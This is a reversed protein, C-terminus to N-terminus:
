RSSYDEIMLAQGHHQLLKQRQEKTLRNEFDQKHYVCFLKLKKNSDHQLSPPLSMEYDVLRQIDGLNHYFFSGLDAIISISNKDSNEARKVSEEIVDLEINGDHGSSYAEVSDKIILSGEKEYETIKANMKNNSNDGNNKKDGEAPIDRISESLTQRVKDTTEYYPLIFVIVDNDNSSELQRKVYNSYIKRFVETSPYILINHTISVEQEPQSMRETTDNVSAITFSKSMNPYM